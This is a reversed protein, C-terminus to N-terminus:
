RAAIRVDEAAPDRHELVMKEVTRMAGADADYTRRALRITRDATDIDCLAYGAAAHKSGDSSASPVGIMPAAGRPTDLRTVSWEHNHGFLVLDACGESLIRSVEAHDSLGRHGTALEDDPPHHILIVKYADDVRDLLTALRERQTVGVRGRASLPPTAVATSIGIFAVDGRRRLYPFNQVGDDGSMYPAWAAKAAKLAGPVYADHNGPVLSVKDPPGLRALVSAATEYEQPLAINVLDGTVCVHDVNRSKIDGILAELIAEDLSGRRNRLWNLYGFVRKSMLATVPPRPLPGLHLDSLHAIRIRSM